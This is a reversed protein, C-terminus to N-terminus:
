AVLSRNHPRPSALRSCKMEPAPFSKRYPLPPLSLETNIAAEFAVTPGKADATSTTGRPTDALNELAHVLEHRLVHDVTVQVGKGTEDFYALGEVAAFDLEVKGAGRYALANGAVFKIELPNAATVKDLMARGTASGSYMTRLATELFTTQTASYGVISTNQLVTEITM